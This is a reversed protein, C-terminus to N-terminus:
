FLFSEYSSLPRSASTRGGGIVIRGNPLITAVHDYRPTQLRVSLPVLFGRNAQASYVELSSLTEGDAGLGGSVLALGGGLDVSAARTRATVAGGAPSSRLSFPFSATGPLSWDFAFSVPDSEALGLVASSTAGTAFQLHDSLVTFGGSGGEPSLRVLRPQDGGPRYEFVDVTGSRALGGSTPVVGGYLYLYTVGDLTLARTTHRTRRVDGEVEAFPSLDSLSIREGSGVFDAASAPADTTTGGLLLVGGEVATATHGTRAQDLSSVSQTLRSGDSRILVASDLARDNADSGGAVVSLGPALPAAAADAQAPANAFGPLAVARLPLHVAFLTDRETQDTDDTVELPLRNLGRELEVDLVFAGQASDFPVTRGGVRVALPGSFEPPLLRLTLSSEFQVVGLDPDAILLQPGDPALPARDCGALAILVALALPRM